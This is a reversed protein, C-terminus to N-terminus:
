SGIASCSPAATSTGTGTSVPAASARAKRLEVLDFEALLPASAHPSRRCPQATGAGVPMRVAALSLPRSM